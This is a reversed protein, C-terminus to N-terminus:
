SLAYIIIAQQVRLLNKKFEYGVFFDSDIVYASVEEGRYFPPCGEYKEISDAIRFIKLLEEKKYDTLRIFSKM